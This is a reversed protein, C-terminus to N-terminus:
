EPNTCRITEPCTADWEPSYWGREVCRAFSSHPWDRPRETYGHKVPSYHIYDLHKEWGDPDCIM